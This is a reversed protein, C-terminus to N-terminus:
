WLLLRSPSCYSRGWGIADNSFGEKEYGALSITLDRARTIWKVDAQTKFGRGSYHAIPMEFVPRGTSFDGILYPTIAKSYWRATRDLGQIFEGSAVTPIWHNPQDPYSQIYSVNYRMNYELGKLLRDNGFAYLNEGQNWAMESMSNLLGIGFITHQQDRTSEQCQGNEYIYNMMTDNFGYDPITSGKTFNYTDVYETSSILSTKSNPGSAYPFDDLRHPLGKIYRLARDYMIQNDMFIGMAMVTRWGSLGQNGHRGADGQYAMWYFTKNGSPVTTTSYGPYVLMAKFANIDSIAWGSYTNKIIEAAEIMIYGVGGSLADTGGSTVSTLNKWANFIEVAKDAYRSDGTVYWMIANYYAARSDSNWKGYNVGSDRGVETLTTNGQVLYSYSAKPDAAMLQYSAYWPDMQADVM